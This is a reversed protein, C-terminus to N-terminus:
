LGKNMATLVLRDRFIRLHKGLHQSCSSLKDKSSWQYLTSKPIQLMESAQDVTMIPPFKTAWVPNSFAQTVEERSIKLKNRTTM